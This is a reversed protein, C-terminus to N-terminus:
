RHTIRHLKYGSTFFYFQSVPHKAYCTPCRYLYYTAENFHALINSM